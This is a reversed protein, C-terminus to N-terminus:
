GEGGSSKEADEAPADDGGEAAAAAEEAAKAKAAAEEEAKAKAEAEAAAKAEAEAATKEEVIKKMKRTVRGQRMKKWAEADILDHQALLDGVTDSPQAGKGLWEKIRDAKLSIQKTPDKEVPNYWGLNELVKGDRQTRKDVANIRYFPRHSRGMRTMRLRVM